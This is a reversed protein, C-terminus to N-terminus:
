QKHTARYKSPSIGVCQRFMKGFFSSYSFGCLTAIQIITYDTNKLLGKAVNIRQLLIFESPSMGLEKQFRYILNNHSIHFQKAINAVKLDLAYNASIYNVIAQIKPSYNKNIAQNVHYQNSLIRLLYYHLYALELALLEKQNEEKSTCNEWIQGLRFLLNKQIAYNIDFEIVSFFTKKQYVMFNAIKVVYYELHGKSSESHEIHPNVFYLKGKEFPIEEQNVILVGSGEVVLMIETYPHSHPLSPENKTLNTYSLSVINHPIFPSKLDEFNYISFM